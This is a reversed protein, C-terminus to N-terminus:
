AGSDQRVTNRLLGLGEIEVEMVDGDVVPHAGLPTGTLILDGPYLTITRSLYEIIDPIRFIMDGTRGDQRLQGNVTVKLSLDSPDIDTEIWPGLPCLTDSAKARTWHQDTQQWDRVTMDNSCAYGFVYDMAQAASVKSATKGIVVAMEGEYEFTTVDPPRIVDTDPGTIANSTKLFAVPATPWPRKKARVASAFNSGICLIKSPACPALLEVDNLQAVVAGPQGGSFPDGDLARIADDSELVGMRSAGNSRFQVVRM